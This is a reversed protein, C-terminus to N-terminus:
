LCAGVGIMAWELALLCLLIAAPLGFLGAAPLTLFAGLLLIAGGMWKRWRGRLSLLTLGYLAFTLFYFLLAPIRLASVGLLFTDALACVATSFALWATRRRHEYAFVCLGGVFCCLTIGSLLAASGLSFHFFVAFLQFIRLAAALAILGCGLTIKVKAPRRKKAM